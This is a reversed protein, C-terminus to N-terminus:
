DRLSRNCILFGILRGLGPEARIFKGDLIDVYLDRM